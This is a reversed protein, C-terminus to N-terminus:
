NKDSLNIDSLLIYFMNAIVQADLIVSVRLYSKNWFNIWQLLLFLKFGQEYTIMIVIKNSPSICWTHLIKNQCEYLM